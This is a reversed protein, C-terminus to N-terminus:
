RKIKGNVIRMLEAETMEEVPVDEEKDTVEINRKLAWREPASRELFWAAAQWTKEAAREIILVNRAECEARAKQVAEFFEAYKARGDRGKQMWNYYTTSTVGCAQAAIEPPTGAAVYNVIQLQLEPNLMTPRGM